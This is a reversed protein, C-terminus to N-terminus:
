GRPSVSRWVPAGGSALWDGGFLLVSLEHAQLPTSTGDAAAPWRPFRGTSLRKHCLWFGQGDYVLVKVATGRRIALILDSLQLCIFQLTFYFYIFQLLSFLTKTIHNFYVRPAYNESSVHRHTSSARAM